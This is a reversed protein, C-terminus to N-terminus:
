QVTVRADPVLSRLVKWVAHARRIRDPADKSLQDGEALHERWDYLVVTRKKTGLTIEMRHEDGDVPIPGVREPLSFFKNEELASRLLGLKETPITFQVEQQRPRGEILFTAKGDPLISLTFACCRTSPYLLNYGYLSAKVSLGVEASQALLAIALVTVSM